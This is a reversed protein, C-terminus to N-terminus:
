PAWEHVALWRETELTLYLFAGVEHTGHQEYERAAALIAPRDLIGMRELNSDGAGFRLKVESQLSRQLQRRLYGATTGTKHGRPALVSDPLLGRMALRLIRKTDGGSGRDSLPRKTAFSVIRQDFLPGRVQIGEDLGLAHNWAVARPVVSNTIMYRFEFEAAGEGPLREFEPELEAAIEPTSNIWSPISRDWYGDLVRGRVSGIWRRSSPSLHPLVCDRVFQRAGGGRIRWEEWLRSWRGHFLHDALVTAGSVLFLHDGGFGDLAVRSGLEVSRKSLRRVMSEFAQVMPDDRIRARRESDAILPIKDIEIWDIPVSWHDGTARIHDDEYGWDDSPLSVSIPLLRRGLADTTALASKGSAFVATSDWGGSMWVTTPGNAAIREKTADVLLARLEEAGKASPESEWGSGIPPPMWRDIQTVRNGDISLTSGGPVAAVRRYATRPGHSLGGSAAIAIFAQDYEASVGPHCIVATPSSAVVLSGGTLSYVLNRRGGFDRALLVRGSRREWAVIAYDGEVYRAFRLGWQRLALLLLEGTNASRPSVTLRRRLDAVYYLTADAAVVWDDDMVILPGSWGDVTAEWEHRAAAMRVGSSVFEEPAGSARRQMEALM